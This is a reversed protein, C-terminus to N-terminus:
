VLIIDCPFYSILIYRRLPVRLRCSCYIGYQKFTADSSIQSCQSHTFDYNCKLLPEYLFYGLFFGYIFCLIYYQQPKLHTFCSSSFAFQWDLIKFQRWWIRACRARYCYLYQMEISISQFHNLFIFHITTQKSFIAIPM